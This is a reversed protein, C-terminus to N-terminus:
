SDKRADMAARAAAVIRTGFYGLAGGLIMWFASGSGLLSGIIGAALMAVVFSILRTESAELTIHKEMFRALPRAVPVDLQPAVFGAIAAAIFGFM